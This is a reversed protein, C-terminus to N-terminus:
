EMPKECLYKEPENTIIDTAGFFAYDRFDEGKHFNGMGYFEEEMNWVRVPIDAYEDPLSQQLGGVYPHVADAGVEKMGDICDALDAALMGTKADPNKEKIISLSEPVFSSYVIYDSLGSDAVIDLM